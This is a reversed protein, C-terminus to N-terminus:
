YINKINNNSNNTKQIKDLETKAQIYNPNQSLLKDMETGIQGQKLNDLMQTPTMANFKSYQDYQFKANIYNGTKQPAIPVGAVLSSLIGQTDTPTNAIATEKAANQREQEKLQAQQTNLKMQAENQAKIKESEINAQQYSDPTIKTPAEPIPTETVVPVPTAPQENRVAQREAVNMGAMQQMVPQATPTVPTPVPTDTVVPTPPNAILAQRAEVNTANPNTKQLENRKSIIEQLTLAM